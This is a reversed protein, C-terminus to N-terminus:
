FRVKGKLRVGVKIERPRLINSPDVRRGTILSNYTVRNRTSDGQILNSWVLRTRGVVRKTKSSSDKKQNLLGDTFRCDYSGLRESLGEKDLELAQEMSVTQGAQVEEPLLANCLMPRIVQRKRNDHSCSGVVSSPPFLSTRTTVGEVKASIKWKRHCAVAFDRQQRSRTKSENLKASSQIAQPTVAGVVVANTLSENQSGYTKKPPSRTRAAAPKTKSNWSFPLHCLAEANDADRQILRERWDSPTLTLMSSDLSSPLPMQVTLEVVGPDESRRAAANANCAVSLSGAKFAPPPRIGYNGRSQGNEFRGYGGFGQFDGFPAHLHSDCHSVAHLEDIDRPMAKLAKKPLHAGQRWPFSFPLLYNQNIQNADKELAEQYSQDDLRALMQVAVDHSAIRINAKSSNPKQDDDMSGEEAASENQPSTQLSIFIINSTPTQCIFIFSFWSHILIFVLHLIFTLLCDSGYFSNLIAYIM